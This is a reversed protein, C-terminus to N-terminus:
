SEKNLEEAELIPGEARRGRKRAGGGAGGDDLAGRLPAVLAGLPPAAAGRGGPAGGGARVGSRETPPGGLCGDAVLRDALGPEPPWRGGGGGRGWPASGEPSLPLSRIGSVAVARGAPRCPASGWVGRLPAFGRLPQKGPRQVTKRSAAPTPYPLGKLNITPRKKRGHWEAPPRPAVSSRGFQVPHRGRRLPPPPLPAAGGSAVM